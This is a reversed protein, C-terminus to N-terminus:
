LLTAEGKQVEVNCPSYIFPVLAVLSGETNMFVVCSHREGELLDSFRGLEPFFM